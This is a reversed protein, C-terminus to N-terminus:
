LAPDDKSMCKEMRSYVTAAGKIGTGSKEQQKTFKGNNPKQASRKNLIKM